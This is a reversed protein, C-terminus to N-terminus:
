PTSLKSASAELHRLLRTAARLRAPGVGACVGSVAARYVPLAKKWLEQGAPTARVRYARRDGPVDERQVWGARQMRDLLGTVNSRDVVLADGLERQSMGEPTRCLINLVNFQSATLGLPRFLRHGEREFAGATAMIAITLDYAADEPMDM